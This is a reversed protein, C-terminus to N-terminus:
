QYGQCSFSVLEPLLKPDIYM